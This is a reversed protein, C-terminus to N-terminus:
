QVPRRKLCFRRDGGKACQRKPRHIVFDDFGFRGSWINREPSEYTPADKLSESMQPDAETLLLGRLGFYTGRSFSCHFRTRPGLGAFLKKLIQIFTLRVSLTRGFSKTNNLTLPADVSSHGHAFDPENERCSCNTSTECRISCGCRRNSWDRCAGRCVNLLYAPDAARVTSAPPLRVVIPAIVTVRVGRPRVIPAMPVQTAVIPSSKPPAFLEAHFLLRHGSNASLPCASTCRVHGSEPTFRVHGKANCM